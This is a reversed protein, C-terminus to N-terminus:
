SAKEKGAKKERKEMEQAAEKIAAQEKEIKKKTKPDSTDPIRTAILHLFGDEDLTQLHHKKIAALKSPGADSGLVVYDTKSSPQGVVRSFLSSATILLFHLYRRYVYGGFRKALDIAEDRSLASLEGTFVFALGALCDPDQPEPVQKSGQASPGAAM